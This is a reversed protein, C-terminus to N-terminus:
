YQPYSLLVSNLIQVAMSLSHSYSVYHYQFKQLLLAGM